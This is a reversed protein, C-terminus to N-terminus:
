INLLVLAVCGVAIGCWQAPRLRERFAFVSFVLTVILGGVALSPYIVSTSMNRNLLLTLMIGTM